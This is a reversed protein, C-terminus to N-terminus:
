RFMRTENQVRNSFSLNKKTFILVKWITLVAAIQLENIKLQKYHREKRTNEM